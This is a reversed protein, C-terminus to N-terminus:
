ALAMFQTSQTSRQIPIVATTMYTLVYHCAYISPIIITRGGSELM